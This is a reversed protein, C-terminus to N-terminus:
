VFVRERKEKLIERFRQSYSRLTRETIGYMSSIKKITLRKKISDFITIRKEKTSTKPSFAANVDMEHLILREIVRVEAPTDPPLGSPLENVIKLAQKKSFNKGCIATVDDLTIKERM